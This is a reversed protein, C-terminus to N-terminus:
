FIRNLARLQEVNGLFCKIGRLVLQHLLLKNNTLPRKAKRLICLRGALLHRINTQKSSLTPTYM